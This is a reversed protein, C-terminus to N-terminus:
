RGGEQSTIKDLGNRVLFEQWSSIRETAAIVADNAACWRDSEVTASYYRRRDQGTLGRRDAEADVAANEAISAEELADLAAAFAAVGERSGAPRRGPSRSWLLLTVVLALAALLLIVGLNAVTGASM